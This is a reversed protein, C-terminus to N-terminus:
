IEFDQLLTEASEANGGLVPLIRTLQQAIDSHGMKGIEEPSSSPFINALNIYTIKGYNSNLEGVHDPSNYSLRTDNEDRYLVFKSTAEECLVLLPLMFLALRKFKM